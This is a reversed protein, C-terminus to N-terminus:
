DKRRRLGWSMRRPRTQQSKPSPSEAIRGTANCQQQHQQQAFEEAALQAQEHAHHAQQLLVASRRNMARDSNSTHNHHHKHKDNDELLFDATSVKDRAGVGREAYRDAENVPQWRSATSAPVHMAASAAAPPSPLLPSACSVVEKDWDWGSMYRMRLHALERMEREDGEDDGDNRADRGERANENKAAEEAVKASHDHQWALGDIVFESGADAETETETVTTCSSASSASRQSDASSLTITSSTSQLSTTSSGSSTRTVSTPLPTELNADTHTFSNPGHSSNYPTTTTSRPTGSPPTTADLEHITISSQKSSKPQPPSSPISGNPQQKTSTTNISHRQTQRSESLGDNLWRQSENAMPMQHRKKRLLGSRRKGGGTQSEKESVNVVPAVISTESLTDRVSMSEVCEPLVGEEEMIPELKLGSYSRVIKPVAAVAAAQAAQPQSYHGARLPFRESYSGTTAGRRSMPRQKVHTYERSSRDEQFSARRRQGGASAYLSKRSVAVGSPLPYSRPLLLADELRM